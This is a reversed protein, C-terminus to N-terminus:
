IPRGSLRRWLLTLAAFSTRRRTSERDGTFRHKVALTGAADALGIYVLGVPKEESGGAPGAIGTISVAVDAGSRERAGAAMAKAVADSVAGDREILDPPIGLLESKSRNSYTVFGREFVESCGPVSVIRAALMGGTCSEALALRQKSALMLRVVAEEISAEDRSYIYDGIRAEIVAAAADLAAAAEEATGTVGARLTVGNDASPLYALTVAELAPDEDLQHQLLSEGPGATRFLRYHHRGGARHILRELVYGDMMGQMEVPVGPMAFLEALPNSGETYHIGPASGHDNPIPTAERPFRAMRESGPPPTMGRAAFRRRINDLLDRREALKDSFLDVLVDRTVDDPTPGLGGTVLVVDCTRLAEGIRAKMQAVDDGVVSIRRLRLGNQSLSRAIWHSNADLTAGMLLEDGM